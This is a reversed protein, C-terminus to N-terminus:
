SVKIRVTALNGMRDVDPTLVQRQILAKVAEMMQVWSMKSKKIHEMIAIFGVQGSGHRDGLLRVASEVVAIELPMHSTATNKWDLVPVFVYGAGTTYQDWKVGTKVEFERRKANLWDASRVTSYSWIHKM